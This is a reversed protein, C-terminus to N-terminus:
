QGSSEGTEGNRLYRDLFAVTAEAAEIRNERKDFGHGEDEFLVYEVPVGNKKLEEVMEDSEVQLVRPDNAGQIIMVPKTVKEAHFLPSIAYLREEDTEPDGLEDYLAQRNAGWWAPISKLTRVWNTVGFINVGADFVEPRFALAAMTMYGGYSGGMVAINDGDVWDLNQLYEKSQVIDDLDAEGHKKDDMHYFTKGYGSSGRNNVALVAYGKNVLHQVMPSYSTGSQGGPGGHVLVIAPVKNDTSANLPKYQISPIMTGDYSEFRIVEAEALNDAELTDGLANTLQKFKGRSRMPAVYINSPAQSSNVILALRKEDPSPRFQYVQGQPLGRPLKMEREKERDYITIQSAADANVGHVRYRGSDSFGVYTVDWDAEIYPEIEGSEIDYTYAARFEGEEDSGFVLKDNEPTFAFLSHSVDSDNETILEPEGGESLDAIYIDNDASSNTKIAALTEGDGSVMMSAFGTDNRFVMERELSETDYRYLDFFQPNRENTSIYFADKDGSWDVFGARVNEGPTLDKAEGDATQLYIHSLENGDQDATYLFGEGDPMYSIAFTSSTDSNTLAEMEGTRANMRYVNPVGSEDSSVLLSKGDPSWAGGSRAISIQATEFFAETPYDPVDKPAAVAAATLVLTSVLPM